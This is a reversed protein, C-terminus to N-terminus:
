LHQVPCVCEFIFLRCDCQRIVGFKITNRKCLNIESRVYGTWQADPLFDKNLDQITFIQEESLRESEHFHQLIYLYLLKILPLNAHPSSIVIKM